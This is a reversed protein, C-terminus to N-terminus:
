LRKLMPRRRLIINWSIHRARFFVNSHAGHDGRLIKMIAKRPFLRAEHTDNCATSEHMLGPRM